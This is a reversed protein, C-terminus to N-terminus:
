RLQRQIDGGGEQGEMMAEAARGEQMSHISPSPTMTLAASTM